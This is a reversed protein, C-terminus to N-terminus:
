KKEGTFALLPLIFDIWHRIGHGTRSAHVHPGKPQGHGQLRSHLQAHLTAAGRFDKVKSGHGEAEGEPEDAREASTPAAPWREDSGHPRGVEQEALLFFM